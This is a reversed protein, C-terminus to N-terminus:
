LCDCSKKCARQPLHIMEGDKLLRRSKFSAKQVHALLPIKSLLDCVRSGAEIEIRQKEEGAFCLYIVLTKLKEVHFSATSFLPMGLDLARLDACASPRAKALVKGLPTGSKINYVGPRSVAGSISVAVTAPNTNKSKSRCALVESAKYINIKAILGFVVFLLLVLLTVKWEARRM